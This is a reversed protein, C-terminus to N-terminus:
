VVKYIGAVQVIHAAFVPYVEHLLDCVIEIRVQLRRM